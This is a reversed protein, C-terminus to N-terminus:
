DSENTLIKSKLIIKERAPIKLGAIDITKVGPIEEIKREITMLDYVSPISGHLSVMGNKVDISIQKLDIIPDVAIRKEICRRLISDTVGDQVILTIANKIGVVGAVSKVIRAAMKKEALTAADGSLTVFGHSVSVTLTSDTLHPDESLRNKVTTKIQIDSKYVPKVNIKNIVARVGKIRRPLMEARDRALINAVTGQLFVVGEKVTIDIYHDAVADDENLVSAVAEELQEDDVTFLPNKKDAAASVIFIGAMIVLLIKVFQIDKMNEGLGEIMFALLYGFFTIM